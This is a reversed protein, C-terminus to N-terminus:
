RAVGDAIDAAHLLIAALSRAEGPRYDVVVRRDGVWGALQMVNIHHRATAYAEGDRHVRSAAAVSVEIEEEPGLGAHGVIGRGIHHLCYDGHEAAPLHQFGCTPSHYIKTPTPQQAAVNTM